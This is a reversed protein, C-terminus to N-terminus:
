VLQSWNKWVGADRTRAFIGMTASTYQFFIQLVNPESFTVNIVLGYTKGPPVNLTSASTVGLSVGPMSGMTNLDMDAASIRRVFELRQVKRLVGLSDVCLISLTSSLSDTLASKLADALTKTLSM